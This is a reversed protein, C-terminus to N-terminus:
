PIVAITGFAEIGYHLHWPSDESSKGISYVDRWLDEGIDYWQLYIGYKNQSYTWRSRAIRQWPRATAQIHATGIISSHIGGLAPAPRDYLYIVIPGEAIEDYSYEQGRSKFGFMISGKHEVAWLKETKSTIDFDRVFIKIDTGHEFYTIPMEDPISPAPPDPPDPQPVPQADGQPFLDSWPIESGAAFAAKEGDTLYLKIEHLTKMLM